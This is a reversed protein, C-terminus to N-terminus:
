LDHPFSSPNYVIGLNRRALLCNMKMWRSNFCSPWQTSIVEGSSLQDVGTLMNLLTSKGAGSKGLIGLFEGRKVQLNIGKLATFDGAATSYTKVVEHYEIIPKGSPKRKEIWVNKVEGDSPFVPFLAGYQVRSRL